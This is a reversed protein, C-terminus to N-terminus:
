KKSSLSLVLLCFEIAHISITSVTVFMCIYLSIFVVYSRIMCHDIILRLLVHM